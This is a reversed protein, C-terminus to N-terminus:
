RRPAEIADDSRSATNTVRVPLIIRVTTGQDPGSEVTIRGGQQDIIRAAITLGLGTGQTKTTFFPEFIHALHEPPIGVGTDTIEVEVTEGPGHRGLATRVTLRGGRPMAQRANILINLLVQHLLNPDLRLRPLDPRLERAIEIGTGSATPLFWLSQEVVETINVWRYQPTPSRAHRLLDTLTKNMRGIQAQIEDLVAQQHADPPLKDTLVRLAGSMGALPNRLDHALGAALEGVTALRESRILHEHAEKLHQQQARLERNLQEVLRREQREREALGGMCVGVLLFFGVRLGLDSPDIARPGVDALLYLVSTALALAAGTALGFYFAHLAILLYFALYFNSATGGTLRVLVFIFVLDLGMAIRYLQTLWGPRGAQLGYLLLSYTTFIALLGVFQRRSESELPHTAWWAVGGLLALGRLAALWRDLSDLGVLLGWWGLSARDGTGVSSTGSVCGIGRGTQTCLSRRALGPRVFLAPTM